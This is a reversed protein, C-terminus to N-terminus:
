PKPKKKIYGLEEAAKFIELEATKRGLVRELEAIRKKLEAVEQYPFVEGESKIGVRGGEHFDRRWKYLQGSLLDYKRAFSAASEGSQEWMEVLQAKQELTFMRKGNRSKRIKGLEDEM